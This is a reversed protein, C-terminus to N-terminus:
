GLNLKALHRVTKEIGHLLVQEGLSGLCPVCFAVNSPVFLNSTAHSKVAIALEDHIVHM